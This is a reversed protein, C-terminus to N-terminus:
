IQELPINFTYGFNKLQLIMKKERKKKKEPIDRGQFFLCAFSLIIKNTNTQGKKHVHKKTCYASAIKGKFSCDACPLM